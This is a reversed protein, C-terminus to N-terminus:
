FTIDIQDLEEISTCNTIIEEINNCQRINSINREEAHSSISKAVVHNLAVYGKRTSNNSIINCSYILEFNPNTLSSIIIKFLLSSPETAPNNTSKSNFIFFVESGYSINDTADIIVEIAKHSTFPLLNAEDRNKKLQIIKQNKAENLLYNNGEETDAINIWDAFGMGIQSINNFQKIDGNRNKLLIM